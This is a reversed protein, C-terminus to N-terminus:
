QHKWAILLRSLKGKLFAGNPYPVTEACLEFPCPYSFGWDVGKWFDGPQRYEKRGGPFGLASPVGGLRRFIGLM